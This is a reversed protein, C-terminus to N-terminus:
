LSPSPLKSMFIPVVFLFFTEKLEDADIAEASDGKGRRGGEMKKGDEETWHGRGGWDMGPTTWRVSVGESGRRNVERRGARGDGCDGTARGDEMAGSPSHRQISSPIHTWNHRSCFTRSALRPSPTPSPPVSDGPQDSCSPLRLLLCLRSALTSHTSASM